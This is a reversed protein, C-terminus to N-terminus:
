FNRFYESIQEYFQAAQEETINSALRSRWENRLRHQAPTFHELVHPDNELRIAAVRALPSNEGLGALLTSFEQWKM